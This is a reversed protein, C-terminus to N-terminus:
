HAIQTLAYLWVCINVAWLGSDVTQRWQRERPRPPLAPKYARFARAAGDEHALARVVVVGSTQSM